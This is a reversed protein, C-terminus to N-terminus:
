AYVVQSQIFRKRKIPKGTNVMVMGNQIVIPFIDLAQPAPPSLVNGMKDFSSSHCPCVFKEAAAEWRVSCGLHSCKLSIALFGGDELRSIYLRHPRFPTVSNAEFENVAGLQILKSRDSEPTKEKNSWLFAIGAATFELGALMGLVTWIKKLFNRRGQPSEGNNNELPSMSKM